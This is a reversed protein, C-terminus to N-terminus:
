SILTQWLLRQGAVKNIHKAEFESLWERCFEVKEYIKDIIKEDRETHFYTIREEEPINSFRMANETMYWEEEFEETLVGDPCLERVLKDKQKEIDDETFDSLVRFVEGFPKGTVAMYGQM